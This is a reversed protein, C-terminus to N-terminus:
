TGGSALSSLASFVAASRSCPMLDVAVRLAPWRRCPPSRCARWCPPSSISGWRHKRSFPPRRAARKTAPEADGRCRRPDLRKQARHQREFGAWRPIKPGTSEPLNMVSVASSRLVGSPCSVARLFRRNRSGNVAICASATSSPRNRTPKALKARKVSLGNPPSGTARTAKRLAGARPRFAAEAAEPWASGAAFDAGLCAAGALLLVTVMM